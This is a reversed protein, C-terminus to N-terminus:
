NVALEDCKENRLFIGLPQVRYITVNTVSVDRDYYVDM